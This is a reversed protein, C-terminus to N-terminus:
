ERALNIQELLAEPIAKSYQPFQNLLKAAEEFDDNLAFAIILHKSYEYEIDNRYSSARRLYALAKAHNGDKLYLELIGAFYFLKPQKLQQEEILIELQQLALDFAKLKFASEWNRASGAGGLSEQESEWLAMLLREMEPNQAIPISKSPPLMSHDKRLTFFTIVVTILLIGIIAWILKKSYKKIYLPKKSGQNKKNSTDSTTLSKLLNIRESQIHEELLQRNYLDNQDCYYVLNQVLDYCYEDEMLLDHMSQQKEASLEGFTYAVLQDFSPQKIANEM